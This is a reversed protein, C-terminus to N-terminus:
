DKTGWNHVGTRPINILKKGNNHIDVGSMANKPSASCILLLFLFEICFHWKQKRPM